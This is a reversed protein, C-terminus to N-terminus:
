YEYIYKEIGIVKIDKNKKIFTEMKERDLFVFSCVVEYDLYTVTWAVKTEKKIEWKESLLSENSIYPTNIAIKINGDTRIHEKIGKENKIIIEKGNAKKWAEIFNM